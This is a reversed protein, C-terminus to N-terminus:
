GSRELRNEVKSIKSADSPSGPNEGKGLVAGGREGLKEMWPEGERDGRGDERLVRKQPEAALGTM